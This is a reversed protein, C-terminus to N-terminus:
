VNCEGREVATEQPIAIDRKKDGKPTRLNAKVSHYDGDFTHTYGSKTCAPVVNQCDSCKWGFTLEIQMGDPLEHRGKTDSIDELCDPCQLPPGVLGDLFQEVLEIEGAPLEDGNDSLDSM